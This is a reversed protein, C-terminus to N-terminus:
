RVIVLSSLPTEDNMGQPRESKDVVPTIRLIVDEIHHTGTQQHQIRSTRGREVPQLDRKAPFQGQGVALRAERPQPFTSAFQGLDPQQRRGCALIILM